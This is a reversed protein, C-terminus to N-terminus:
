KKLSETYDPRTSDYKHAGESDGLMNVLYEEVRYFHGVTLM